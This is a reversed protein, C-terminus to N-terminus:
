LQIIDEYGDMRALLPSLNSVRVAVLPFPFLLFKICIDGWIDAHRDVWFM